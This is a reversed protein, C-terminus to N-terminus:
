AWIAHPERSSPIAKSYVAKFVVGVVINVRENSIGKSKTLEEVRKALQAFRERESKLV